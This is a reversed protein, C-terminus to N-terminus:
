VDNKNFKLIEKELITLEDLYINKIKSEDNLINTYNKIDEKIKIIKDKTENYYTDTWRYLPINVLKEVIDENDIEILAHVVQRAEEKNKIKQIHTVLEGDFCKLLSEWYLLEQNSDDILKIYRKKYWEIRWPVFKEFIEISDSYQKISKTNWDIVVIRESKKQKIKLIDIIKDLTNDQTFERSVKVEINIVDTSRDIFSKITGDDELSGLREKFKELDVDPPLETIKLTSSNDVTVKGKFEYSNKELEKVEIDYNKYYPTLENIKKSKLVDKVNKIIDLPNRPLIDTSWGVAIGSIGNLLVTPIIPLFHVPEMVSGDYNEKLPVIDLDPYYLLETLKSKKVYTYRPSGIGEVPAIRTGFSGIGHIPTINNCYPAAMLSIASAGSTEGHLYLDSSIMTGALSITKIKDPINRLLWLAKRQSDKLGDHIKPISRSECVYISYERSTDLIYESSSKSKM